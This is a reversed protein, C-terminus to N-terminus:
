DHRPGNKALIRVVRADMTLSDFYLYGPALPIECHKRHYSNQELLSVLAHNAVFGAALPPNTAIISAAHEDSLRKLCATTDTPDGIQTYTPVEPVLARLVADRLTAIELASADGRVLRQEISTLAEVPTDLMSEFTTSQEDFRLLRCGFGVSCCTLTQVANRRTARHLATRASISWFEIADLVIDCGMAFVPATAATIGDAFITITCDTAISRMLRATEIAKSRGLTKRTAAFQRNLNSVEFSEPDAIRVEGVGLRVFITALLGGMGGCGAIGVCCNRLIEQEEESIWGLNRNTRDQYHGCQISESEWRYIAGPETTTPLDSGADISLTRM